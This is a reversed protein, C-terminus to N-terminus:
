RASINRVRRRKGKDDNNKEKIDKKLSKIQEKTLEKDIALRLISNVAYNILEPEDNLINERAYQLLNQYEKTNTDLEYEYYKSIKEKSIEM